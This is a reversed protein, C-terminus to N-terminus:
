FIIFQTNIKSIYKCMYSIEMVYYKLINIDRGHVNIITDM